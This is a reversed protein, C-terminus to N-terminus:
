RHSDTWSDGWSEHWDYENSEDSTLVNEIIDEGNM